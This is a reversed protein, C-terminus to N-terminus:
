AVVTARQLGLGEVGTELTAGPRLLRPPRRASGIGGPTGTSVLDGPQLTILRTIHALIRPIRFILDRTNGDQLTDGDLRAFVRLNHPDPIEDATVLWPGLPCFTDASKGYYWQQGARQADRDTVDNLVLYGAVCDLANDETLRAAPRGIVLALEAEGDVTSSGPPLRIPDNPGIVANAGKAFVVPTEPVGGGFEAAHDAYNKGLCLIQGGPATPPGLREAAAPRWVPRPDKLLERVRALGGHLFFHRDYDNLDFAMARVDLIRAETGDAADAWVGPREQGAAGFRVLKM